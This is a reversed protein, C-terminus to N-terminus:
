RLEWWGNYISCDEVLQSGLLYTQGKVEEWHEGFVTWRIGPSAETWHVIANRKTTVWGTYHQHWYNDDVHMHTSRTWLKHQRSGDWAISENISMCNARSHITLGNFAANASLSSLTLLTALLLM